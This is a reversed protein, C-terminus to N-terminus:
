VDPVIKCNDGRLKNSVKEYDKFASINRGDTCKGGDQSGVFNIIDKQKRKLEDRSNTKILM